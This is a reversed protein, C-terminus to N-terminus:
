ACALPAFYPLSPAKGSGPEREVHRTQCYQCAREKRNTREERQQAEGACLCAPRMGYNFSARCQWQFIALCHTIIDCHFAMVDTHHEACPFSPPTHVASCSNSAPFCASGVEAAEPDAWFSNHSDTAGKGNEPAEQRAPPPAAVKPAASTSQGGGQSPAQGQQPTRTLPQTHAPLPPWAQVIM